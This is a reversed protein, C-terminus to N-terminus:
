LPLAILRTVRWCRKLLLTVSGTRTCEDLMLFPDLSRLEPRGADLNNRQTTLLQSLQPLPRARVGRRSLPSKLVAITRM